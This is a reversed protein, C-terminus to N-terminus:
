VQKTDQTSPHTGDTKHAPGTSGSLASLAEAAVKVTIPPKFSVSSSIPLLVAQPTNVGPIALYPSPRHDGEEESIVIPYTQGVNPASCVSM